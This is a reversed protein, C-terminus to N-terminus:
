IKIIEYAFQNKNNKVNMFAEFVHTGNFKNLVFDQLDNTKGIFIFDTFDLIYLPISRLSHFNFIFDNNKHRQKTMFSVIEKNASHNFFITAEEFIFLTDRIEPNNAKKIISEFNDHLTVRKTRGFEDFYEDNVDFIDIMKFEQSLFVRVLNTTRTTKGSKKRGSNLIIM